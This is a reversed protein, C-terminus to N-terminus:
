YNHIKIFLIRSSKKIGTQYNDILIIMRLHTNTKAVSSFYIAVPFPQSLEDSFPLFINSFLNTDLQKGKNQKEGKM